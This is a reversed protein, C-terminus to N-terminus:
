RSPIEIFKIKDWGDPIWLNLFPIDNWAKKKAVIQNWQTVQGIVDESEQVSVNQIDKRLQEIEPKASWYRMRQDVCAIGGFLVFILIVVIVVGVVLEDM